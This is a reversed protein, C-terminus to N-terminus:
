GFLLTLFAVGGCYGPVPHGVRAADKNKRTPHSVVVGRLILIVPEANMVAGLVIIMRSGSKSGSGAGLAVEAFRITAGAGWAFGRSKRRGEARVSARKKPRACFATRSLPSTLTSSVVSAAM